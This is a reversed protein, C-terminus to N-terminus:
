KSLSIKFGGMLWRGPMVSGLLDSYVTNFVNDAEAFLSLKNKILFGELRANMVFYQSSLSAHISSASQAARTKYLGNVEVSYWPTRYQLNFNTLFRAHSSIYFSTATDSSADNLWTVGLTAWLERGNEIPQTFQLDAEAGTTNLHAINQALAYSGTPVLNDKRPMQSYPTNVWDIVNSQDRKFLTASLKLHTLMYDAGAEYSFSREAQLNPNGISGSSVVAKNYNNFQETFDAERITKGASGRLQWHHIKYSANIQPVLETGALQNWDLRLAPEVSLHDGIAQHLIVFGAAQAVTHNGRDNSAISNNIFQAGTTIRTLSSFYHDYAVLSQFLRSTNSNPTLGSNFAYNDKVQKYGVNFSIKDAVKEYSLRLQNWLTQVQETATDSLFTTYFNQASFKRSDFASRVSLNWHDGLYQSLSVSATHNHFFGTTGRQPQGDANNSSLGASVATQNKQYFAGAQLSALGYEGGTGQVTLQEKNQGRRAAFTKTIIHIVGGVAESGYIASSAGKLIEIHDIEAPAIPAYSTFHGTNPDNLRIGDLIVLVQQFTGGRLVIDSQSGMPGRAQVEIGPLYRLLEDVSHVPLNFFREGKIVLINRGTVSQKEPNLSSTVTIPDLENERTTDQAKATVALFISCLSAALLMSKRMIM